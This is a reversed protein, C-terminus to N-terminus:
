LPRLELGCDFLDWLDRLLFNWKYSFYQRKLINWKYQKTNSDYKPLEVQHFRKLNFYDFIRITEKSCFRMWYCIYRQHKLEKCSVTQTRITWCYFCFSIFSSMWKEMNSWNTTLLCVFSTNRKVSENYKENYMLSPRTNCRYNKVNEELTRSKTWHFFFICM